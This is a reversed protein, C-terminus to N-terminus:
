LDKEWELLEIIEELFNEFDLVGKPAEHNNRIIIQQRGDNILMYTDPLEKIKKGNAPYMKQYQFPNEEKIKSKINFLIGASAQAKYSGIRNTNKKGIWIAEGNSKIAFEFEPCSGFCEMRQLSAMRYIDPVKKIPEREVTIEVDEPLEIYIEDITSPTVITKNKKNCSCLLICVFLFNIWFNYKMFKIKVFTDYGVM